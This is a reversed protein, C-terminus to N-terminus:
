SRRRQAGHLPADDDLDLCALGGLGVRTGASESPEPQEAYRFGTVPCRWRGPDAGPELRHGHRGVWGAQRAPVGLVLAFPPVDRTVAAGAGVFAFRGLTVGCVITANAGVTAGRCVRTRTFEARRSIEARPNAVNTFVASPGVFVDDELVVGDYLSVNNQIRAGDGVLVGSAVFVNQGLVAGRGIRAGSMVHCFHWVATGEGIAAGEDVCATAHIKASPHVLSV